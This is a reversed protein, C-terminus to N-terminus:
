KNEIGKMEKFFEKIGDKGIQMATEVLKDLVIGRMRYSFIEILMPLNVGSILRYKHEKLEPLLMASQNYPSASFLDTLVLVGDGTDLKIIADKIENRFVGIDDGHKLSLTKYQEPEGMILTVSDLMGESMRGHTAILVGVM